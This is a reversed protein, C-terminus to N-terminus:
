AKWKPRGRVYDVVPWARRKSIGKGRYSSFSLITTGGAVHAPRLRRISGRMAALTKFQLRGSKNMAAVKERSLLARLTELSIVVKLEAEIRVGLDHALELIEILKHTHQGRPGELRAIEEDTLDRIKMWPKIQKLPDHLRNKGVKGWHLAWATGQKSKQVDVDAARRRKRKGARIVAAKYNMYFLPRLHIFGTWRALVKRPRQPLESPQLAM